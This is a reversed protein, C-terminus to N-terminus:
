FTSLIANDDIHKYLLFFLSKEDSVNGIIKKIFSESQTNKSPLFIFVMLMLLVYVNLLVISYWFKYLSPQIIFYHDRIIPLSKFFNKILENFCHQWYFVITLFSPQKNNEGHFFTHAYDFLILQLLFVIIFSSLYFIVCYEKINKNIINENNAYLNILDYCCYYTFSIEMKRKMENDSALQNIIESTLSLKEAASTYIDNSFSKINIHLNLANQIKKIFKNKVLEISFGYNLIMIMVMFFFTNIVNCSSLFWNSLDDFLLPVYYYKQHNNILYCSHDYRFFGVHKEDIFLYKNIKRKDAHCNFLNVINNFLRENNNNFLMNLFYNLFIFFIALLSSNILAQFM